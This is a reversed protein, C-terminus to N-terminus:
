LNSLLVSLEGNNKCRLTTQGEKLGKITVGWNSSTDCDIINSDYSWNLKVEKQVNSPKVSVSVYEMSGVSTQLSTKALSLSNISIGNDKPEELSTFFSCSPLLNVALVLSTFIGTIKNRLKIHM